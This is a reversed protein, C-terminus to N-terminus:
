TLVKEFFELNTLAVTQRSQAPGRACRPRVQQGVRENEQNLARRHTAAAGSGFARACTEHSRALRDNRREADWGSGFMTRLSLSGIPLDPAALSSWLARRADFHMM